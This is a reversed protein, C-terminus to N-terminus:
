HGANPPVIKMKEEATQACRIVKGWRCFAGKQLANNLLIGSRFFM